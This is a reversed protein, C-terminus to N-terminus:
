VQQMLFGVTQLDSTSVTRLNDMIYSATLTTRIHLFIVGFFLLLNLIDVANWMQSFYKRWGQERIEVVEEFFYWLVFAVVIGELGIVIFNSASDM